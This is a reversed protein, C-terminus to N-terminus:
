SFCTCLGMDPFVGRSLIHLLSKLNLPLFVFLGTLCLDFNHIWEVGLFAWPDCILVHFLMQKCQDQTLTLHFRGHISVCRNPPLFVDFSLSIIKNVRKWTMSFIHRFSVFMWVACGSLWLTRIHVERGWCQNPCNSRTVTILKAVMHLTCQPDHLPIYEEWEAKERMTMTSPSDKLTGGNKLLDTMNKKEGQFRFIWMPCTSSLSAFM